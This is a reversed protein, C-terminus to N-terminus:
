ATPISGMSEMEERSRIMAPDYGLSIKDAMIAASMRPRGEKDEYEDIKLEGEVAVVRGKVLMDNLTEATKGFCLVNIFLTSDNRRNNVALRFKSMSTGAKTTSLVADKTLRGALHSSNFNM